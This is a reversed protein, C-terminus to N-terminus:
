SSHTVLGGLPVPKFAYGRWRRGEALAPADATHFMWASDLGSTARLGLTGALCVVTSLLISRLM